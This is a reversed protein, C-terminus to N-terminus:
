LNLIISIFTTFTIFNLQIKPNLKVAIVIGMFANAQEGSAYRPPIHAKPPLKIMQPQAFASPYNSAIELLVANNEIRPV